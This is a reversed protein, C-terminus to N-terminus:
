EALPGTLVVAPLKTLTCDHEGEAIHPNKNGNPGDVNIVKADGNQVCLVPMDDPREPNVYGDWLIDPLSGTLGAVAVKLAQLELGDPNNGGGEFTNGYIYIGEPYPDFDDQTSSPNFGASFM